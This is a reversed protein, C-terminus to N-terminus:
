FRPKSRRRLTRKQKKLQKNAPQPPYYFDMIGQYIAKAFKARGAPDQAMEEQAPLIIYANEVLISPFQPIRPIFLIDNAILGNDPLPVYRNFAEYVAKALPLSHPYNYYVSYGRPRSLPNLTEPLANYHISVFIHANEKLAKNYRGQLSIHNNGRRTMIVEAGAAKLLKEVDQALALNAEYELYGTPGVAGDYPVTRKPSHGADILIRAGKLPQNKQPTLTPKHMLDLLLTGKEFDYAHGWVAADKKFRITFKITDKAPYNWEVSDVVPSTTDLSYNEGFGRTYYFTLEFRDNFEQVQIPVERLGQFSLRTKGETVNSTMENIYNEEYRGFSRIKLRNAELWASENENLAIRYLGNTLGNIQVLGYARYFPYLNERKVPIKRLKIGPLTIEAATFPNKSDLIKIRGPATIKAKTNGPANKMRYTVKVTKPKQDQDILYKARYVGPISSDEKMVVNKAEKLGSLTYSVETHPTGRVSLEILDGPVLEVPTQPYVEEPDFEAKEFFNKIPVGPVIVTRKAQYTKGESQATLLFEFDGNEVPLFAIFAGNPRVPVAEGNIDLSPNKLNLKGFIFIKKAGRAVTMKEHPYQVTIPAANNTGSAQAPLYPATAVEQVFVNFFGFFLFFLLFLTRKMKYFSLM